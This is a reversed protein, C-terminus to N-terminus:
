YFLLYFLAPLLWRAYYDISRQYDKLINCTKLVLKNSWLIAIIFSFLTWLVGLMAGSFYYINMFPYRRMTWQNFNQNICIFSGFKWLISVLPPFSPLLRTLTDRFPCIHYEACEFETRIQSPLLFITIEDAKSSFWPCEHERPSINVHYSFLFFFFLLM